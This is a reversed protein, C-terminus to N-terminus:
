LALPKNLTCRASDSNSVPEFYNHLKCKRVVKFVRSVVALDPEDCTSAAKVALADWDGCGSVRVAIIVLV